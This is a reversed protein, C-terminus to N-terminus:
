KYLLDYLRAKLVLIEQAQRANKEALRKARDAEDRMTQEALEARNRLADSVRKSEELETQALHLNTEQAKASTELKVIKERLKDEAYEAAEKRKKMSCAFDNEINEEAIEFCGEFATAIYSNEGLAAVINKIQELAKREEQKSTM